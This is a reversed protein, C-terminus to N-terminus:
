DGVVVGAAIETGGGIVASKLPVIEFEGAARTRKPGPISIGTISRSGSPAV